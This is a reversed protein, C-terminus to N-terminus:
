VVSSVVQVLRWCKTKSIPRCVEINVVDGQKCESNEDHAHLKTSRRIYKKYLPHKVKREVLVVISKNGSLSVVSGRILRKTKEPKPSSQDEADTVGPSEETVPEDATKGAAAIEIAPADTEIEISSADAVPEDATKEAAAIEIAPADTEIEISSASSVPEDATKEATAIEIAPADTEVEISSAGSVPEDSVDVHSSAASSQKQSDNAQTNM